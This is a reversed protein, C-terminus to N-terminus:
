APSSTLMRIPEQLVAQAEPLAALRQALTAEALRQPLAENFKLGSLARDDVAPLCLWSGADSTGGRWIEKTLDPRPCTM